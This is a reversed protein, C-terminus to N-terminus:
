HLEDLLARAQKLDITDFGETFWDHVPVLLAHAEARKGQDRWLRALNIAARLEWTKANERGAVALAEHFCAEAGTEDREIRSLLLRGKIRHLEAEYWRENTEQARALAEDIINLAEPGQNLYGSAEALLALNFPTWLNAGTARHAALGDKLHAVSQELRREAALEWGRCFTARATLFPTGQKSALAALLQARRRVRRSDRCLQAFMCSIFVVLARTVVDASSRAAALAHRSRALAQDPYGLLFLNLPVFALGVVAPDFAYATAEPGRKMPRYLGLMRNLHRRAQIFRGLWLNATGMARHGLLLATPEERNHGLALIEEATAVAEELEARLLHFTYRGFLVPLLQATEGVQRCLEHAALFARGTEPAAHGRAAVLTAGIAIKLALEQEGREPSEPLSALLDLAITLQASAEAAASRAMALESARRWCVIAKEILGAQTLHHALLEPEAQVMGPFQAELVGAIRAHLLHRKNRLLTAYAVEQVLAHKFSYMAQPPTGRHFILEAAVLQALAEQLRAEPLAAVAALLEHSFERGLAAAIQAVEKVPALRDLRAMLSDQLTAPIALRPLAGTLEYHDDVKRLLGSELVAKTLEEIFLPVGDSKAVIQSLVESPLAKGGSVREVLETSQRRSLRTLSLPTLYAYSTWHPTFEPRFTILALVPLHQIRGILLELLELTSPDAWHVDDYLALVPQKAALGEVQEILVELTRQKQRERSLNLRPHQEATSITFLTGILPVADKLNRTSRALLAKLKELQLEPPDDRSLNAARELLGIVPHFASHTHHPSCYHSLSVYPEDALREHLARVIRSKGVGAEGSILVVQGDGEKASAWRELLIGLEHERGVLPTLRKGHLAEFRSEAPAEGVVRWVHMPEAFGKIHHFGLDEVDFLGGILLRTRDSIVTDGPQALAQLRAALNPTEGIVTDKDAVSEGILDGVIVQGTAIGIRVGLVEGGADRLKGIAGAISLGARVGREADDEHASPYGFCALVGDGLFRLVHGEFRAIESAVANHYAHIVVSLDEPDLRTALETSGVLDCLMVTLQRREAEIRRSGPGETAERPQPLTEAAQAEPGRMPTEALTAIARLLLRRHGVGAVGIEKLDEATLYPLSQADVQNDRFAQEYRELGLERLWAAIDV